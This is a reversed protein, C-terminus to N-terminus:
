NEYNAYFSYQYVLKPISPRFVAKDSGTLEKIMSENEDITSILYMMPGEKNLLMKACEAYKEWVERTIFPPDIVVMDFTGLLDQALESNKNFDYYVFGPDKGFKTDIDFVKSAAKVEKDKLSFYISPTSLFACKKYVGNEAPWCM